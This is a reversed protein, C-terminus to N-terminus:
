DGSGYVRARPRLRALTRPGIGRVALLADVSGLPRAAVIRAAIAPGVGPLSALEEVSETELDVPQQLAEIAEPPMRGRTAAGEGACAVADGGRLVVDRAATDRPCAQALSTPADADCRLLGDIMVARTCGQGAARPAPGPLGCLVGLAAAM